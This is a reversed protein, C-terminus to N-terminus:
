SILSAPLLVGVYAAFIPIPALLSGGVLWLTNVVNTRGLIAPVLCIGSIVLLWHFPNGFYVHFSIAFTGLLVATGIVLGLLFCSIWQKRSQGTTRLEEKQALAGESGSEDGLPRAGPTGSESNMRAWRREWPKGGSNM